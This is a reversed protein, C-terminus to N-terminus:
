QGQSESHGELRKDNKNVFDYVFEDIDEDHLHLKPILKVSQAFDKFFQRRRSQDDQLLSTFVVKKWYSYISNSITWELKLRLYLGFHCWWWSLM